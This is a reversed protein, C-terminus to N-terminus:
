PASRVERVAGATLHVLGSHTDVALAGSADVDVARGEGDPEWTITRGLTACCQRYEEHPWEQPGLEVLALLEETWNQAIRVANSGLPISDFVAGVGEPPDPWYLNAGWGIVVTGDSVETLIGGLKCESRVVDNPWKLGVGWGLVRVAAVGAVLTLRPWTESPWDCRFALSAALAQPANAWDSGARGRGHTQHDAVVLMPTRGLLRRADDQTSTTREFSVLAYPTAM